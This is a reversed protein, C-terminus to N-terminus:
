EVPRPLWPGPPCVRVRHNIRVSRGPAPVGRDACAARPAARCPQSGEASAKLETCSTHRPKQKFNFNTVEKKLIRVMEFIEETDTLTVTTLVVLPMPAYFRVRREDQETPTPPNPHSHRVGWPGRSRGESRSGQTAVPQSGGGVCITPLGAAGRSHRCPQPPGTKCPRRPRPAEEGAPSLAGRGKALAPGAHPPRSDPPGASAASSSHGRGQTTSLLLPRMPRLM